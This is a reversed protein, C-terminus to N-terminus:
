VEPNTHAPQSITSIPKPLRDRVPAHDPQRASSPCLPQGVAAGERATSAVRLPFRNLVRRADARINRSARDADSPSSSALIFVSQVGISFVARLHGSGTPEINVAAVYPAAVGQLLRTLDRVHCTTM